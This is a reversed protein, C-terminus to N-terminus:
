NSGEKGKRKGENNNNLDMRKADSHLDKQNAQDCSRSSSSKLQKFDHRTWHLQKKADHHVHHVHEHRLGHYIHNRAWDIEFQVYKM